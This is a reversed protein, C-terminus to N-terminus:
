VRSMGDAMTTETMTIHMKGSIKKWSVSKLTSLCCNFHKQDLSPAHRTTFHSFPIPILGKTRPEFSEFGVFFLVDLDLREGTVGKCTAHTPIDM